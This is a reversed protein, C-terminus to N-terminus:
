DGIRSWADIEVGESELFSYLDGAREGSFRDQLAALLDSKTGLAACLKKCDKASITWAWEYERFGFIEEVAPGLDQGQIVLDGEDDISAWLYRTDHGDRTNRLVVKDSTGDNNTEDLYGNELPVDPLSEPRPPPLSIKLDSAGHFIGFCDDARSLDAYAYILGDPETMELMDKYWRTYDPDEGIGGGALEPFRKVFKKALERPADGKADTWGFFDKGESGSFHVGREFERMKAGHERLTNHATCISLRWFLGSPPVSPAIRLLEYGLIHLRAVMHLLRRCNRVVQESKGSTM